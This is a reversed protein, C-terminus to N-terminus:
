SKWAESYKTKRPKRRDIKKRKETNQSEAPKKEINEIRKKYVKLTEDNYQLLYFAALNYNEIDLIENRARIQTWKKYPRGNKYATILKESTLQMFFEADLAKGHVQKPFHIYGPGSETLMLRNYIIRKADDTGVTFVRIREKAREIKGRFSVVPYGEGGKGKLPHINHGRKQLIKVFKYVTTSHAGSDILTNALKLYAGKSHRFKQSLMVELKEWTQWQTYKGWIIRHDILWSEESIGWGKVMLELRDDQVDVASTLVIVGEPLDPGYDEMRDMLEHYEIDYDSQDEWVQGLVLNVFSRLRLKDEKAEIFQKIVYEWTSLPSYLENIFFGAHDTVEPNQAIWKGNRVMYAKEREHIRAECKECEYYTKKIDYEGKGLRWGKLQEFKLTQYHGCKPCPVYYMRQDSRDYEYQIRSLNKVTPTSVKVRKFREFGQQRKEIVSVTDGEEGAEYPIRDLEDIFLYKISQAALKNVSHTGIMSVHGGPFAKETISNDGDRKKADSVKQSLIESDRIMPNLKRKSFKSVDVDTPYAVLLPGPAQDILWGIPNLIAGQTFATQASKM